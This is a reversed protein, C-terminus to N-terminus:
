QMNRGCCKKYKKGSGCPCPDNPRIKAGKILTGGVWKEEGPALAHDVEQAPNEQVYKPLHEEATIKRKLDEGDLKGEPTITRLNELLAECRFPLKDQIDDLNYKKNEFKGITGGTIWRKDRRLNEVAGNPMDAKDPRSKFYSLSNKYRDYDRKTARKNGFGQYNYDDGHTLKTMGEGFGAKTHMTAMSALFIQKNAKKTYEIEEQRFFSDVGPVGAIKGMDKAFTTCNRTYNNYGKDAYTESAKLVANIQRNEMRYSRSLDYDRGREDALQGPMTAQHFGLIANKAAEQVGGQPFLGYRLNYREWQRSIKSYRSFEIGIGSHGTDNRENLQQDVGSEPQSIYFSFVPDRPVGPAKEAEDVTGYSWVAPVRRFDIDLKDPNKPELEWKAGGWGPIAKHNKKEQLGSRNSLWQNFRRGLQYITLPFLLINSLFGLVKGITKGSYYALRSVFKNSGSTQHREPFAVPDFNWGRIPKMEEESAQLDNINNDAPKEASKKSSQSKTDTKSSSLNRHKPRNARQSNNLESATDSADDDPIWDVNEFRSQKGEKDDAIQDLNEILLSKDEDPLKDMGKILDRSDENSILNGGRAGIQSGQPENLINNNLENSICLEFRSGAQVGTITVKGFVTSSCRYQDM